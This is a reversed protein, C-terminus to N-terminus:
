SFCWEQRLNKHSPAVKEEIFSSLAKDIDVARTDGLVYLAAAAAVESPKFELFDIGANLKGVLTRLDTTM